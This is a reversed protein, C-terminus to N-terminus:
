IVECIIYTILVYVAYVAVSCWGILNWKAAEKQAKEKARHRSIEASRTLQRAKHCQTRHIGM